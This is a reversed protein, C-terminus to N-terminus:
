KKRNKHFDELDENSRLLAQKMLRDDMMKLILGISMRRANKIKNIITSLDKRIDAMNIGQEQVQRLLEQQPRPELDAGCM